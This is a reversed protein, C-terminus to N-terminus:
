RQMVYESKNKLVVRQSMLAIAGDHRVPPAVGSSHKDLKLGVTSNSRGCTFIVASSLALADPSCTSTTRRDPGSNTGRGGTVRLRLCRDDRHIRTARLRRRRSNM